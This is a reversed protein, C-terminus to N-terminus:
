IRKRSRFEMEMLIRLIQVLAQLPFYVIAISIVTGLVVLVFSILYILLMFSQHDPFYSEIFQSYGRFALISQLAYVVIVGIVVKNISNKLIIVDLPDYFEPQNEDDLVKAEWDELGEDEPTEQDVSQEAMEYVSKDQEPNSEEKPPIEGLRQILIEKIVEFATDTWEEHDNAWWIELLDETERLSLENYMHERFETNM